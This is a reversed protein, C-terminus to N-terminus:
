QGSHNWLCSITWKAINLSLNLAHYDEEKLEPNGKIVMGPTSLDEYVSLMKLSPRLHTLTYSLSLRSFNKKSLLWSVNAEPMWHLGTVSIREEKGDTIQLIGDGDNLYDAKLALFASFRKHSYNLRGYANIIHKREELSNSVIGKSGVEQSNDRYIYSAGTELRFGKKFPNYYHVQLIQEQMRETMSLGNGSGFDEKEKPQLKLQYAINLVKQTKGIDYQYEIAGYLPRM